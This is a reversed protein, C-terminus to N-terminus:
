VSFRSVRDRANATDPLKEKVRLQADEQKLLSVFNVLLNSIKIHNNVLALRLSELSKGSM